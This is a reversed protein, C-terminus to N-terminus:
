PNVYLARGVGGPGSGSAGVLIKGESFYLDRSTFLDRFRLTSTGLDYTGHYTGLTDDYPTFHGSGSVEVRPISATGIYFKEGTLRGFYHGGLPRHYGFQGGGSGGHGTSDTSFKLSPGENGTGHAEIYVDGGQAVRLTDTPASGQYRLRVSFQSDELGSTDDVLSSVLEVAPDEDCTLHTDINECDYTALQRSGITEESACGAIFSVLVSFRLFNKM